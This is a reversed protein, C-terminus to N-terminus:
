MAIAHHWMVSLRRVTGAMERCPLVSLANKCEVRVRFAYVASSSCQRVNQRM